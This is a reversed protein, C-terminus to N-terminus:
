LVESMYVSSHTSTKICNKLNDHDFHKKINFHDVKLVLVGAWEVEVQKGCFYQIYSFFIHVFTELCPTHPQKRALKFVKPLYFRNCNNYVLSMYEHGRKPLRVREIKQSLCWCQGKHALTPDDNLNNCIYIHM